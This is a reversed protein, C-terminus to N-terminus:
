KKGKRKYEENQKEYHERWAEIDKFKSHHKAGNFELYWDGWEVPSEQAEYAEVGYTKAGVREALEFTVPNGKLGAKALVNFGHELIDKVENESKEIDVIETLRGSHIFNHCYHCLPYIESISASGNDYDIEWFEHAELWKPGKANAKAVGCAKCHFDTSAYVEKRTKDWWEQGMITRPAVGHLPKPVNPQTLIEPKLELEPETKLKKKSSEGLTEFYDRVNANAVERIEKLVDDAKEKDDVKATLSASYIRPEYQRVQITQSVSVSVETIKGM